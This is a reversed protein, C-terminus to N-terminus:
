RECTAESIDVRERPGELALETMGGGCQVTASRCRTVSRIGGLTSPTWPSARDRM